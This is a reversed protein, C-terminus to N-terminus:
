TLFRGLKPCHKQIKKTRLVQQVEIRSENLLNWHTDFNICLKEGQASFLPTKIIQYPVCNLSLETFKPSINFNIMKTSISEPSISKTAKIKFSDAKESAPETFTSLQQIVASFPTTWRANTSRARFRGNTEIRSYGVIVTHFKNDHSGLKRISYLKTSSVDQDRSM